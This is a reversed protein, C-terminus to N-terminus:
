SMLEKYIERAKEYGHALMKGKEENAVSVGSSDKTDSLLEIHFCHDSANQIIKKRYEGMPAQIVRHLYDLASAIETEALTRVYIGIIYTKGNDLYDVPYVNGIAGDVYSCGNIIYQQYLFPINMSALTAVVVSEKPTTTVSFYDTRQKTVNYALTIYKKNTLKYHEQFSPIFGIKEKIIQNLAEEVPKNTLLGVNKIIAELQIERYDRFLNLQLAQTIIENIECGLSLLLNIIAGVSVGLFVDITELLKVNEFYKLCGLILFGKVGGPGLILAEPRFM